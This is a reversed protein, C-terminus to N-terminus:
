SRAQSARAAEMLIFPLMNAVPTLEKRMLSDSMLATNCDLVHLVGAKFDVCSGVWHQQDINFPFYLRGKFRPTICCLADGSFKFKLRDKVSTKVFRSHHSMLTAPLNTESVIVTTDNLSTQINIFAMLSDMVKPAMQTSRLAIDLFDFMPVSHDRGINTSQMGTVQELVGLYHQELDRMFILGGVVTPDCKFDDLGAPTVRSITSKRPAIPPEAPRSAPLVYELPKANVVITNPAAQSVGVGLSFSPENVESPHTVQADETSVPDLVGTRRDQIPNASVAPGETIDLDPLPLTAPTINELAKNIADAPEVNQTTGQIPIHGSLLSRSEVNRDPQNKGIQTVNQNIDHPKVPVDNRLRSCVSNIVADSQDERGPETGHDCKVQLDVRTTVREVIGSIEEKLQTSVMNAILNSADQDLTDGETFEASDEKENKEKSAKVYKANNSSKECATQDSEQVVVPANPTVEEKLEPVSAIMVLKIAEVYCRLAFSDQALALEDKKLLSSMLAQFSVRGWPYAMFEDVDCILEVHDPNVKPTHSSPLLVSTVIALCAFKIRTDRDKVEDETLARLISQTIKVKHYSNVRYGSPEEGAAFIRPPLEPTSM